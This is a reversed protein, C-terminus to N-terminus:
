TPRMSHTFFYERQKWGRFVVLSLVIKKLLHKTSNVMSDM